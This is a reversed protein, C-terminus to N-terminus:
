PLHDLRSRPTMVYHGGLHSLRGGGQVPDIQATQDTGYHQNQLIQISTPFEATTALCNLKLAALKGLRRASNVTLYLAARSM